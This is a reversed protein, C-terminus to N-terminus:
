PQWQPDRGSLGLLRDLPPADAPVPVAPAFPKGEGQYDPTLMAPAFQLSQEAAAAPPSWPRDLARALDWGHMQYEWLIMDLALEGPMANDGLWLPRQAAGARVAAGMREAAERVAAAADSPVEYDDIGARAKGGPDAYGDAFATLWGLIHHRLREVDFDRCPTPDGLQDNRVEGMLAALQALVEDLITMTELSSM